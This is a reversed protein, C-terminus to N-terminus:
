FLYLVSRTRISEFSWIVVIYLTPRADSFEQRVNKVAIQCDVSTRAYIRMHARPVTGSGRLYAAVNVFLLDGRLNVHPFITKQRLVNESDRDTRPNSSRRLLGDTKPIFNDTFILIM